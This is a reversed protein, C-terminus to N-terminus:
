RRVIEEWRPVDGELTLISGSASQAMPLSFNRDPQYPIGRTYGTPHFQQILQQGAPGIPNQERATAPGFTPIGSIRTQPINSLTAESMLVFEKKPYDYDYPSETNDIVETLNMSVGQAIDWDKLAIINYTEIHKIWKRYLVLM